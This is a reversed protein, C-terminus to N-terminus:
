VYMREIIDVVKLGELANTTITARNKLVDVVNEITTYTTDYVNVVQEITTYMTDYATCTNSVLLLAVDSTDSCVDNSVIIRFPQEHNALTVNSVLM